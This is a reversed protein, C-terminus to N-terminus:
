LFKHDDIQNEFYLAKMKFFASATTLSDSGAQHQIGIRPIQLQDALDSLGGSLNKCCRMLYRLDYTRPFYIGLVNFFDEEKPPLPSCTLVKILYAYDYGGSFSIWNVDDLLVLGSSILLEGFVFTDIGFEEHKKFDIGSSELLDVSEQLYMDSDKSFKFNFQWTCCRKPHEGTDKSFTLGLQIIKLM